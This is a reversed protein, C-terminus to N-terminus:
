KKLAIFIKRHELDIGTRQWDVKNIDIGKAEIVASISIQNEETIRKQTEQNILIRKATLEPIIAVTDKASAKVAATQGFCIGSIFLLAFLILNKM